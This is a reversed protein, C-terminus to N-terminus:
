SLSCTHMVSRGSALNLFAVAALLLSDCELQPCRYSLDLVLARFFHLEDDEDIEDLEEEVNCFDAPALSSSGMDLSGTTLIVNSDDGIKKGKLSQKQDAGKKKM